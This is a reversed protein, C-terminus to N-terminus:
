DFKENDDPYLLARLKAEAVVLLPRVALPDIDLCEAILLEDIGADRLRLALSHAPPLQLIAQARRDAPHSVVRDQCVEHIRRASDASDLIASSPHDSSTQPM